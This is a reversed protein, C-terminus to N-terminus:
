VLGFMKSAKSVENAIHSHFKLENDSPSAWTKESTDTTLSVGNMKYDLKPNNNGNEHGNLWSDLDAHIQDDRSLM